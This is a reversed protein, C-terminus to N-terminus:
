GSRLSPDAAAKKGETGGLSIAELREYFKKGELLLGFPQHAISGDRTMMTEVAAILGMSQLRMLSARTAVHQRTDLNAFHMAWM